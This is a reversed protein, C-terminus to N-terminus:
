FQFIAQLGITTETYDEIDATGFPTLSTMYFETGDPAVALVEPEQWYVDLTKKDASDYLATKAYLNLAFWDNPQWGIAAKVSIQNHWDYDGFIAEANLTWDKNLVSFVGLGAEIYTINSDGIYYPLYFAGYEDEIGMGYTNGDLDILRGRALGYITSSKIKYGAKVEALINNSTDKQHQFYASATAIWDDNDVFRWQLGLGYMNVGSDDMKDKPEGNSWAIEYDTTDYQLMGVLAFRDTIGYSFDEKIAIKDAEWSGVLGTAPYKPEATEPDVTPLTQTLTFDYSSNTYSVDTISGFKGALPQFFPHALFYKRQATTKVTESRTKRITRKSSTARSSNAGTYEKYLASRNAPATYYLDGSDTVKYTQSNTQYKKYNVTERTRISPAGTLDASSGARTGWNTAASASSMGLIALAGVILSLQKKM